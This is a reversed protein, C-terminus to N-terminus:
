FSIFTNYFNSNSFLQLIRLIDTNGGSRVMVVYQGCQDLGRAEVMGVRGVVSSYVLGAEVGEHAQVSRNKEQELKQLQELEQGVGAGWRRSQWPCMKLAPWSIM